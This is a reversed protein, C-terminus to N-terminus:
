PGLKDSTTSAAGAGTLVTAARGYQVSADKAEQLQQAQLVSTQDPMVPPAGPNLPSNIGITSKADSPSWPNKHTLAMGGGIVAAGLVTYLGSM